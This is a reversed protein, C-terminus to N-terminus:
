PDPAPRRLDALEIIWPPLYALFLVWEGQIPGGAPQLLFLLLSTGTLTWAAPVFALPALAALPLLLPYGVRPSILAALLIIHTWARPMDWRRKLALIVIAAEALAALSILWLAQDRGEIGLDRLIAALLGNIPGGTRLGVHAVAWVALAAPTIILLERMWKQWRWPFAALILLPLLCAAGTGAGAGGLLVLPHWAFLAALWLSRNSHRLALLLLLIAAMEAVVAALRWGGIGPSALGSFELPWWTRAIIIRMELAVVVILVGAIWAPLGPSFPQGLTRRALGCLAAYVLAGALVLQAPGRAPVIWGSDSFTHL